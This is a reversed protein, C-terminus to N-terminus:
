GVDENELTHLLNHIPTVEVELADIDGRNTDVDTTLSDIEGQLRLDESELDTVLGEM